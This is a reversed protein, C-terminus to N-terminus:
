EHRDAGRRTHGISLRDSLAREWGSSSRYVGHMMDDHARAETMVANMGHTTNPQRLGFGGHEPCWAQIEGEIRRVTTFHDETM